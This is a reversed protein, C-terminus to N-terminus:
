DDGAIGRAYNQGNVVVQENGTLGSRIEVENNIMAGVDVRKGTVRGQDASLVFVQSVGRADRVIASGPVTITNVQEDGLLRAESVMGALLVRSPNSVVIKSVYTRSVPDSAAAIAEVRGEFHQGNLSPISVEARAGEHVKGVESEPIGVNV